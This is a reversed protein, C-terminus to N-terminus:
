NNGKMEDASHILCDHGLEALDQMLRESQRFLGLFLSVTSGFESGGSRSLM